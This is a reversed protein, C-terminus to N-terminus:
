VRPTSEPEWLHFAGQLLACAISQRAPGPLARGQLRTEVGYAVWRAMCSAAVRASSEAPGSARQQLEKVFARKQEETRPKRAALPAELNRDMLVDVAEEHGNFLALAAPTQLHLPCDTLMDPTTYTRAILFFAPFGVHSYASTSERDAGALVLARIAGM